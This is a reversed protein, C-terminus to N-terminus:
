RGHLQDPLHPMHWRRSNCGRHAAKLNEDSDAGGASVPVVHDVSGASRHNRDAEPDIAVGCIWCIWGDRACVARWRRPARSIGQAKRRENDRRWKDRKRRRRETEDVRLAIIRLVTRAQMCADSCTRRNRLDKPIRAGCNTCYKARSEIFCQRCMKAAWARTGGCACPLRTAPTVSSLLRGSKNRPGPKPQRGRRGFYLVEGTTRNVAVAGWFERLNPRIALPLMLQM